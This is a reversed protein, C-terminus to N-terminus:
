SVRSMSAPVAPNILEVPPTFPSLGVSIVRESTSTTTRANNFLLAYVIMSLMSPSSLNPVAGTRSAYKARQLVCSVPSRSATAPKMWFFWYGDGIFASRESHPEIPLRRKRIEDIPDTLGLAEASPLLTNLMKQTPISAYAQM